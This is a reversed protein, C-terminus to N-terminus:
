TPLIVLQSDRPCPKQGAQRRVPRTRPVRAPGPPGDPANAATRPPWPPTPVAVRSRGWGAAGTRTGTRRTPPPDGERTVVRLVARYDTHYLKM